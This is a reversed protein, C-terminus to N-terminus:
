ACLAKHQADAVVRNRGDKKARYLAEDARRMLNEPQENAVPEAAAFGASLTVIAGEALGPHPLALERVAAQLRGAILWMHAVDPGTLVVVFEEGGYRAVFDETRMTSQLAQAVLKLCRDGEQHGASDNFKKFHDIDIMLLGVPSDRRLASAWIQTLREEFHRRNAIGTLADVRSMQRVESLAEQLASTREDVLRELRRQRRRHYRLTLRHGSWLTMVVFLLALGHALYTQHWYPEVYLSIQTGTTDTGFFVEGGFHAAVRFSTERLPLANFFATRRQDASQWRGTGLQYHFRLAQAANISPVSYDIQVSDTGAPIRYQGNAAPTVVTGDVRVAEISVVPPSGSADVRAPDVVALGSTTAIWLRGDRALTSASQYGGSVRTTRLGDLTSFTKSRLNAQEGRAVADLDARPIRVVGDRGGLWLHGTADQEITMVSTQHVNHEASFSFLNEGDMRMLGGSRGGIWVVGRDDVFTTAIAQNDLGKSQDIRDLIQLSSPSIITIGNDGSLLLRGAADESVNRVLDALLGDKVTLSATVEVGTLRNLGGNTGVWLQGSRDRFLSGIQNGALGNDVTITNVVQEDRMIALGRGFTGILITGDPEVMLSSVANMPLGDATTY